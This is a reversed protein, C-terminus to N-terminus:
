KEGQSAAVSTSGNATPLELTFMAGRGRGESQAQLSGNMEKAANASSHLGFGHGDERTTFGQNFIQSFNAPEIGIGNDIVRLSVREPGSLFISLTVRRDKPATKGLAHRANSLLNILIQLVKHRDVLVGPVNAKYDRQLQIREREYAASNIQIASEMLEKPDLHEVTAGVRAYSQQMAVITKIHEVNKALCEVEGRIRDNEQVLAQGLDKLYNRLKTGKPDNTLFAELNDMQQGLMEAAQGLTNSRTRRLHDKVLTASVNVSNLVNGVNHLVATAVEAMGLRRSSELLEHRMAEFRAEAEKITTVDKSIGVTGMIVGDKDRWPMKSTFVWSVRGDQYIEKELKGTVSKGTRIIEQEDEYAPRAHEEAFFDFDTKGKLLGPEALHLREPVAKSFRVFRSQRDKFYISDQVTELLSNLLRRDYASEAEAQKRATVDRFCWVRGVCVGDLVQPRSYREFIRGDQFELTDFSEAGPDAYVGNIKELFAEGHKLQAKAFDLLKRDDRSIIIGDPVGWMRTFTSNYSTVNGRLDVVLIGDATSEVTAHLLSLSGALERTRESVKRRLMFVWLLVVGCVTIAAGAIVLVQKGSFERVLPMLEADSASRLSVQFSQPAGRQTGQISCVGTVKLRDGPKFEGLSGQGIPNEISAGFLVGDNQLTLICNSGAIASGQLLGTLTILRADYKGWLVAAPSVPVAAAQLKDQAPKAVAEEMVPSFLGSSIFGVAELADGVRFRDSRSLAVRLASDDEQLILRDSAAYTCIGRIRVLHTPVTPWNSLIKSITTLPLSAQRTNPKELAVINSVSPVFCKFSIGLPPNEYDVGVVGLIRVRTNILGNPDLAPPLTGSPVFARVRWGGDGGLDIQVHDQGAASTVRHVIGEVEAWECDLESAFREPQAFRRPEPLKGTGLHKWSAQAVIPSFGGDDTKGSIEVFEGNTPYPGGSLSVFVGASADRIFLVSWLTDSYTVLGRLSVRLGSAAAARPTYHIDAANTLVARDGLDAAHISFSNLWAWVLLLLIFRPSVLPVWPPLDVAGFSRSVLRLLQALTPLRTGPHGRHVVVTLCPTHWELV